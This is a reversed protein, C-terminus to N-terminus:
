KIVKARTGNLSISSRQGNPTEVSIKITTETVTNDDPDDDAVSVSFETSGPGPFLNDGLTVEFDGSLELSEGASVTIETGPPLPNGFQDTVEFTITVGSNAGIVFNSNGSTIVPTQPLGSFLFNTTASIENNNEDVTTATVTGYGPRGGSGAIADNPRPNASILEVSAVGDNDTQASGQIIGGTTEFYVVTGPKVPNSFQDGVIVTVSSRENNFNYGEINSQGMTISFHNPDPFGGHIAILVPTSRITLNPTLDTRTISAQVKVPGAANGSFLSTTVQGQGNTVLSTPTIAEGGGPGSIIEFDVIAPNSSTLARGASDQVEFTFSSSIQNGTEAINISQPNPTGLLIIQAAGTSPGFVGGGGDGDTEDIPSLALPNRLNVTLGPTLVVNVSKSEYGTKRAIITIETTESINIDNFTFDGTADTTFVQNLDDDGPALDVIAENLGTGTSEDIVRGSVSVAAETNNEPVLVFPNDLTIDLGPTAVVTLQKRDFGTKKAELIIDTTRSLGIETFTFVGDTGTVFAENLEEPSIIEVIAQNLPNLNIQNQVVGTISIAEDLNTEPILALPQDLDVELGPSAVVTISVRDFGTKKAEVIIDTTEDIEISSFRFFGTTDTIVTRRLEEPSTVEVIAENIPNSNVNNIVRGSITVSNDSKSSECGTFFVALGFMLAAFTSLRKM